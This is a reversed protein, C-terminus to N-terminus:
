APEPMELQPGGMTTMRQPGQETQGGASVSAVLKAPTTCHAFRALKDIEPDLVANVGGLLIPSGASRLVHGFEGSANYLRSFALANGLGVQTGFDAVNGVVDSVLELRRVSSFALPAFRGLPRRGARTIM